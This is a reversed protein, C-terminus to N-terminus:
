YKKRRAIIDILHWNKEDGSATAGKFQKETAKLIDFDNFYSKLDELTIGTVKRSCVWEDESGLFIAAYIGGSNVTKLSNKVVEAFSNEKCFPIALASYFFDVNPWVEIDEFRIAQAKLTGSLGEVRSKLIELASSHMDIAYVLSGLKVLEVTENSVGCGLDMATTPAAGLSRLAEEFIPRLGTRELSRNYYVEAPTKDDQSM